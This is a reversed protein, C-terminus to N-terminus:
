QLLRDMAKAFGEEGVQEFYKKPLAWLQLSGVVYDGDPASFHLRFHLDDVVEFREVNAQLHTWRSIKPDKLRNFCFEFDASTMPDGNHFKVGPRLRM